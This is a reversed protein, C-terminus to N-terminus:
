LAVHDGILQQFNEHVMQWTDPHGQSFREIKELAALDAEMRSRNRTGNLLTTNGLSLVLCYLAAAPSIEARSALSQVVDSQVLEPNATLTWFSQYIIHTDRCYSRLPVDFQTGVYFRNQVVAPKVKVLSSLERLLPLTCNSIGLNRIRHPVYTEFTSWAELTQSMTPLPSHLILMDIHADNVSDLSDSERLHELSLQISAHVQETVSTNPDYPMDDPDQGHVSTFKTQIYLDERRVMGDRIAKRIGEGVLDERYHKPQAATDVARFGASLAQYVLDATRDKKWATGYIFVPLSAPPANQVSRLLHKDWTMKSIASRAM